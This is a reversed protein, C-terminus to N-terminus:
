GPQTRPLRDCLRFCQQLQELDCTIAVHNGRVQWLAHALQEVDAHRDRARRAKEQEVLGGTADRDFLFEIQHLDDHRCQAIALDRHQEYLVVHLDNLPEGLSDQCKVLARHYGISRRGNRERVGTDLSQDAARLQLARSARDGINLTDSRLTDIPGIGTMRPAENASSSPSIHPSIPRLPEPFVVNNRAMMPAMGALPIASSPPISKSTNGGCRRTAW